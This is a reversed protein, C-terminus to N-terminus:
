KQIKRTRSSIGTIGSSTMKNDTSAFSHELGKKSPKKDILKAVDNPLKTNSDASERFKDQSKSKFRKVYARLVGVRDNAHDNFNFGFKKGFRIQLLYDDLSKKSIGVKRASDELSMKLTEGSSPDTYGNYLRRWLCVKHLIEGIRREKTRKHKSGGTVDSSGNQHSPLIDQTEIKMPNGFEVFNESIMTSSQSTQRLRLQIQNKNDPTRRIERAPLYTRPPLPETGCYVFLDLTPSYYSIMTQDIPFGKMKLTKMLDGLDIENNAKLQLKQNPILERENKPIFQLVVDVLYNRTNDSGVNQSVKGEGIGDPMSSVSNSKKLMSPQPPVEPNM